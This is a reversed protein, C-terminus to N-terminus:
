RHLKNNSKILAAIASGNPHEKQAQKFTELDFDGEKAAV